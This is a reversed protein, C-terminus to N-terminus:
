WSGAGVYTHRSSVDPDAAMATRTEECVRQMAFTKIAAARAQLGAMETRDRKNLDPHQLVGPKYTDACLASVFAGIDDPAHMAELFFFKYWGARNLAPMYTTYRSLSTPVDRSVQMDRAHVGQDFNWNPTLAAECPVMIHPIGELSWLKAFASYSNYSFLGVKVNAVPPRQACEFSVVHM